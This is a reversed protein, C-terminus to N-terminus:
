VRQGPQRFEPYFKDFYERYGDVGLIDIIQKPFLMQKMMEMNSMDLQENGYGIGEWKKALDIFYREDGEEWRGLKTEHNKARKAFGEPGDWNENPYYLKEKDVGVTRTRGYESSQYTYNGFKRIFQKYSLPIYNEAGKKKWWFHKIQNPMIDGYYLAQNENNNFIREAMAPNDSQAIYPFESNEADSQYHLKQSIRETRNNFPQPNTFQGFYSDQGNWVPTDLDNSDATFEIIVQDDYHYGFDKAVYFNTTVFLGNPNMGYEYSYTRNAREKGSLGNKAIKIATKIDTGHFVRIKEGNGIPEYNSDNNKYISVYMGNGKPKFSISYKFKYMSKLYKELREMEGDGNPSVYLLIQNKVKDTLDSVNCRFYNRINSVVKNRLKDYDEWGMNLSKEANKGRKGSVDVYRVENICDTILKTLQRETIKLKMYSLYAIPM